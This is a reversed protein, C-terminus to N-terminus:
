KLREKLNQLQNKFNTSEIIEILYDISWVISLGTNEEFRIRPRGTQVSVAIDSYTLYGGIIGIFKGNLPHGGIKMGKETLSFGKPKFFVPSGSNGPFAFGDIYFTKDKNIISIIGNRIIPNFINNFKIGPQYSIFFVEDLEFLQDIKVFLNQPIRLVDTKGPDSAFPIIALDVEKNEHFIWDVNFNTKIRSLPERYITNEIKSVTFVNLNGDKLSNSNNDYIVHKATVLYTLGQVSIFFGSAYPRMKNQIFEGMFAISKKTQIILEKSITKEGGIM